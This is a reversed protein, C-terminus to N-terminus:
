KLLIMRKTDIINGAVKLSYFYIGSPYQSGDFEASYNGANKKENVLVAVENGLVNYVKLTVFGLKSIGFELNTVPNFPNPYNPSLFYKDPIESSSNSFNTLVGGTTTKLITGSDGVVWGTLSDALYISRYTLGPQYSTQSLWNLGGDTTAKIIGNVEAAWGSYKSTFYLSNAGNGTGPFVPSIWNIGGNTTTFITPVGVSSPGSFWGNLSDSFFLAQKGIQGGFGAFWNNGGNTTKSIGSAGIVCGTHIAWGTQENIFFISNFFCKLETEISDWSLGANVTKFINLYSGLFNIGATYGITDNVFVISRFFNNKGILSPIWEEGGNTTRLILGSDGAAYGNNISTFSVSLLNNSFQSSQQHWNMGGDTTKLIKGNQGVCWGTNSNIFKVSYLNSNIGSNQQVWGSQSFANNVFFVILLINILYKM